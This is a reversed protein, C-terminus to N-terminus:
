KSPGAPAQGGLQQNTADNPIMLGQVRESTGALLRAIGTKMNVEAETGDLQNQGRTIRVRGALRAIGTDPVYVARDGIATDTVTRVTVNGFADVKQLKGSAALPDESNQQAAPQTQAPAPADSTYAVLTDAALRRGDNTVLVANGRAVAMHKQSWYELSDRATLVDSPTTLKLARGTVVLVAKDLDYVARDGLVQDTPTFIRVNGEAQVRYIENGGTDSGNAVSQAPQPAQGNKPRYFAVLRDATVTVNQRVARANGRAIVERQEQRWEIGESATIAIPGGHTMDLQQAWGCQATVALTLAAALSTLPGPTVSARV